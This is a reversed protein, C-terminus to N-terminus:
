TVNYGAGIPQMSPQKPEVNYGAGFPQIQQQQPPQQGQTQAMWQLSQILGPTVSQGGIQQLEDMVAKATSPSPYSVLKTAQDRFGLRELEQAIGQVILKTSEGGALQMSPDVQMRRDFERYVVYERFTKM